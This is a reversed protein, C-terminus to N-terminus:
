QPQNMRDTVLMVFYQQSLVDYNLEDGEMVESRCHWLSAREPLSRQARAQQEMGPLFLHGKGLVEYVM